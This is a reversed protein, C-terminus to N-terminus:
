EEKSGQGFKRKVEEKKPFDKIMEENIRCIPEGDEEAMCSVTGDKNYIISFTRRDPDSLMWLGGVNDAQREGKWKVITDKEKITTKVENSLNKEINPLAGRNVMDIAKAKENKAERVYDERDSERERKLATPSMYLEKSSIKKETGNANLGNAINRNRAAANKRKIRDLEKWRKVLLMHEVRTTILQPRSRDVWERVMGIFVQKEVLGQDMMKLCDGIQLFMEEYFQWITLGEELVEKYIEKSISM